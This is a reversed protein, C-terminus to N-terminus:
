IGPDSEEVVAIQKQGVFKEKLKSAIIEALSRSVPDQDDGYERPAYQKIAKKVVKYWSLDDDPRTQAVKQAMQTLEQDALIQKLLNSVVTRFSVGSQWSGLKEKMQTNFFTEPEMQVEMGSSLALQRLYNTLKGTTQSYKTSNLFLKGDAKKAIVTRYSYLLDGKTWATDGDSGQQAGATLWSRILAEEKAGAEIGVASQIPEVMEMMCYNCITSDPSFDTAAHHNRCVVCMKQPSAALVRNLMPYRDVTGKHLAM